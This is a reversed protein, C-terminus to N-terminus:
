FTRITGGTCIQAILGSGQVSACRDIEGVCECEWECVYVCVCAQQM